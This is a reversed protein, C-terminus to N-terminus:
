VTDIGTRMTKNNPLLLAYAVFADDHTFSVPIQPFQNVYPIGTSTKLVEYNHSGYLSSLKQLLSKRVEASQKKRNVGDIKKVGWHVNEYDGKGATITHIFATTIVSWSYYKEANVIAVSSYCFGAPIFNSEPLTDKQFFSSPTASPNIEQLQIKWGGRLLEPQLRKQFKYVSEKISWCLWVFQVFPIAFGNKDFLALEESTLFKSYFCPNCARQIDTNTLAIIDNGISNKRM